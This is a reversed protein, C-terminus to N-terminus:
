SAGTSRADAAKSVDNSKAGAAKSAGTTKAGADKSAGTTKAGAAKSAGTSRAGRSSTGRTFALAEGLWFSLQKGDLVGPEVQLWGSGMSRGTGMMARAVGPRTELSKG